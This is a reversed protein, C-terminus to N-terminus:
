VISASGIFRDWSASDGRLVIQEDGYAWGKDEGETFTAKRVAIVNDEEGSEENTTYTLYRTGADELLDANTIYHGIAPAPLGYVVEPEPPVPEPEVETCAFCAATLCLALVALILKRIKMM